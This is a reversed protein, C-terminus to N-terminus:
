AAMKEPRKQKEDAQTKVATGQTEGSSIPIRRGIQASQALKPVHLTLVGNKFDCAIHEEDVNQPLPMVREFYGYRRERRQYDRQKGGGENKTEDRMEARLFLHNDRVEVHINDKDFGPLDAEICWEKEDQSIDVNPSWQQLATQTGMGSTEGFFQGFLRDMDEQMRRMAQWPSTSFFSSPSLLDSDGFRTLGGAQERRMPLQDDNRRM